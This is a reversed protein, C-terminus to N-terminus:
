TNKVSVHSLLVILLLENSNLTVNKSVSFSLKEVDHGDNSKFQAGSLITFYM